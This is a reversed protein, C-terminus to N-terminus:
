PTLVWLKMEPPSANESGHIGSFGLHWAGTESIGDFLNMGKFGDLADDRVWELDIWRWLRFGVETSQTMVSQALALYGCQDVGTVGTMVMERDSAPGASVERWEGAEGLIHRLGTFGEVWFLHLAGQEDRHLRLDRGIESTSWVIEPDSWTAGDDHSTMIQIWTPNTGPPPEIFGLQVVLTLLGEEVQLAAAYPQLREALPVRTLAEGLRGFHVDSEGLSQERVVLLLPEGRTSYRLTQNSWGLDLEAEVLLRPESWEKSERKAFWLRTYRYSPWEGSFDSSPVAEPWIVGWEGDGLSLPVPSGGSPQPSDGTPLEVRGDWGGFLAQEGQGANEFAADRLMGGVAYEGSIVTVVPNEMVMSPGGLVALVGPAGADQDLCAGARPGPGPGPGRGSTDSLTGGVLALGVLSAGLLRAVMM